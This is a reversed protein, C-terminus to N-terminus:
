SFGGFTPVGRFVLMDGSFWHNSSTNGIYQFLREKPSINTKPPTFIGYMSPVPYTVFCNTESPKVPNIEGRKWLKFTCERFSVYCSFIPRAGFPFDEGLWWNEPAVRLKWPPYCFFHFVHRTGLFHSNKQQIDGPGSSFCRKLGLCM